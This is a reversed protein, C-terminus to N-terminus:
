IAMSVAPIGDVGTDVGTYDYSSERPVWQGEDQPHYWVDSMRELMFMTSRVLSEVTARLINHRKFPGYHLYDAVPGTM